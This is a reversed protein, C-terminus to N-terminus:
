PHAHDHDHSHVVRGSYSKGEIEIV